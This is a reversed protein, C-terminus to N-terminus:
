MENEASMKLLVIKKQDADSCDFELMISHNKGAAITWKQNPTRKKRTMYYFCNEIAQSVECISDPFLCICKKEVMLGSNGVIQGILLLGPYAAIFVACKLYLLSISDCINFTKEPKICKSTIVPPFLQEITTNIGESM